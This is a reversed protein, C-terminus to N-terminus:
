TKFSYSSFFIIYLEKIKWTLCGVFSTTCVSHTSCMTVAVCMLVYLVCGVTRCDFLWDTTQVYKLCNWVHIHKRIFPGMRAHNLWTWRHMSLPLRCKSEALIYNWNCHFLWQRFWNTQRNRIWLKWTEINANKNFNLSFCYHPMTCAVARM